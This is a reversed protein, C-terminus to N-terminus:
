DISTLPPTPSSEHGWRDLTELMDDADLHSWVGALKIREGEYGVTASGNGQQEDAVYLIEEGQDNDIPIAYLMQNERVILTNDQQERLTSM